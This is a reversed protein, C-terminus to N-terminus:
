RQAPQPASSKLESVFNSDPVPYGLKKSGIRSPAIVSCVSRLKPIVRTSAVQARHPPCRPWTKSSPGRGVPCRYQMFEAESDSSGSAAHGCSRPLSFPLRETCCPM